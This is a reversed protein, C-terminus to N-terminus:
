FASVAMQSPGTLAFRSRTRAFRRVASDEVRFAKLTKLGGFSESLDNLCEHNGSQIRMSVLSNGMGSLRSEFGAKEELVMQRVREKNDLRATLLVDTIIALLESTKEPM